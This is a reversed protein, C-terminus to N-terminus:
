FCQNLTGEKEPYLFYLVGELMELVNYKIQKIEKEVHFGNLHGFIQM